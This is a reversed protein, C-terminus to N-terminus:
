MQYTYNNQSFTTFCLQFLAQAKQCASAKGEANGYRIYYFL